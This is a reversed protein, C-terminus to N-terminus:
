MWVIRNRRIAREHVARLGHPWVAGADEARRLADSVEVPSVSSRLAIFYTHRMAAYPKQILALRAIEDSNLFRIM